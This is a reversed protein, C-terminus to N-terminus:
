LVAEPTFKTYVDRDPADNWPFFPHLVHTAWETNLRLNTRLAATGSSRFSETKITPTKKQPTLRLSEPQPSCFETIYYPFGKMKVCILLMGEM